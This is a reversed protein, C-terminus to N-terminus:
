FSFVASAGSCGWHIAWADPQKRQIMVDTDIDEGEGVLQLDTLEDWARQWEPILEEPQQLGQLGAM